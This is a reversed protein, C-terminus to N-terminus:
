GIKYLNFNCFSFFNIVLSGTTRLIERRNGPLARSDLLWNVRWSNSVVIIQDNFILEFLLGFFQLTTAVIVVFM